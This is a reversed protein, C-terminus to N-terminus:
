AGGGEEDSALKGSDPYLQHMVNDFLAKHREATFPPSGNALGLGDQDSMFNVLLELQGSGPSCGRVTALFFM